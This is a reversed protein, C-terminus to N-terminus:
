EFFNTFAAGLNKIAQQSANRTVELMWPFASHKLANLERRLSAESPQPGCCYERWLAYDQQWRALAWNWAFRAVGCARAFYEAQEKNPDLAIKHALIM